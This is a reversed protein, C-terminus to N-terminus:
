QQDPHTLLVWRAVRWALYTGVLVQFVPASLQTLAYAYGVFIAVAVIIAIPKSSFVMEQDMPKM